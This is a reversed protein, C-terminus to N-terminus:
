TYRCGISLLRTQLTYVDYVATVNPDSPLLRRHTVNGPNRSSDCMESDTLGWKMQYTSCHGQGPRFGNLLSWQRRPLHFGILRATPDNVFSSNIVMASQLRWAVLMGCSGKLTAKSVETTTSSPTLHWWITALSETMFMERQCHPETTIVDTKPHRVKGSRRRCTVVKYTFHGSHTLWGPWSLMWGEPTLFHTTIWTIVHIVSTSVMFPLHQSRM